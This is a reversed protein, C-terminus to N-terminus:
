QGLSGKPHPHPLPTPPDHARSGLPEWEALALQSNDNAWLPQPQPGSVFVGWVQVFSLAHHFPMAQDNQPVACHQTHQLPPCLHTPDSLDSGVGCPETHHASCILRKVGAISLPKLMPSVAKLQM